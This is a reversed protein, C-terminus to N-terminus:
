DEETESFFLPYVDNWKTHVVVEEVTKIMGIDVFLKFWPSKMVSNVDGSGVCTKVAMAIESIIINIDQDILVSEERDKIHIVFENGRVTMAAGFHMNTNLNFVLKGSNEKKITIEIYNTLFDIVQSLKDQKELSDGFIKSNDLGNKKLKKM